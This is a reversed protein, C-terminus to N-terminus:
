AKSGEKSKDKNDVSVVVPKVVEEIKKVAKELENLQRQAEEEGPSALQPGRRFCWAGGRSARQAPM